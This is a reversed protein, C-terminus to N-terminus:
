PGYVTRIRCRLEFGCPEKSGDFLTEMCTGRSESSTEGGEIVSKIKGALDFSGHGCRGPCPVTFDCQDGPTYVRTQNDMLHQQPTRFELDVTLKQVSPYRERLPGISRAMKERMVKQENKNPGAPARRKKKFPQAM